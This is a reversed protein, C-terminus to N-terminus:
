QIKRLKKLAEDGYSTGSHKAIVARYMEAANRKDNLKVYCDGLLLYSKTLWEDYRSFVTRVRVLATIADNYKAQEFLSLGYYYQAKAGVDDSRKESLASLYNDANSYRGAAMEILALEFKSKDAFISEPYYMAVDDFVSYAEQFKKMELYTQGKNFLIEPVKPSKKLDNSGADYIKIADDYKKNVRLINGMELVSSGALESDKYNRFVKDFNFIAEDNQGLSQASKGIWYYADPVLKSKPYASTFDKYAQKAQEYKGLSYYIEGKKFLLQDSYSLNPNKLAFEGLFSVAKEPNGKAVYSSQIGNVADFVYNSTPFQAIVKEYNVIASDYKGMNFYADGISYFIIPELSTKPYKATVVKYQSIAKPFEGRQFYIWGITYLSVDGYESNPFKEQISTFESIAENVKGSKYLAQAYQYRAYPDTSLKVDSSFLEQYVKSAAAFNKSGFYSDALRLKADNLRKNNPYKKIFDAFQYASNEYDGLNFYSYAKGYLTQSTLDKDNGNAQNYRSLAKKFDWIAFYNEALFFNVKQSEFAPDKSDLEELYKISTKNDNLNYLAIGLGFLSRFKVDKDIDNLDKVMEFYNKATKYSGKNLEIEGLLTFAKARVNNDNSSNASLLYKSALDTNNKNYYVVGIQYQAEKALPDNPYKEIFQKYIENAEDNKGLYRKCEAKWFFSKIALSDDGNSLGDFQVFADNYKKQQFYAWALGYKSNKFYESTPYKNLVELYTKEADPYEQVRYYATALLYLSESYIDDPLNTLKPNKLELISSQYDKLKFYCIGIRIQASNALKSDKHYTLLQDYYKVANNYDGQKEYVNALTYISYDAFSKNRKDAVAEELFKVAEDLKNEATYSEGIWYFSSGVYESEPYDKLLLKFRLRSKEYKGESFYILGLNYLSKDRYNSWFYNTVLYEFTIAAEDKRGLKLLSEASYYKATAYIEDIIKYNSFFEEFLRNAQAYQQNHFATMAADFKESVTQSQLTQFNLTFLICFALYKLM